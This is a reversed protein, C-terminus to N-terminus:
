PHKISYDAIRLPDAMFRLASVSLMVCGRLCKLVSSLHTSHSSDARHFPWGTQGCQPSASFIM